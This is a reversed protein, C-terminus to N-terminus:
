TENMWEHNGGRLSVKKSWIKLGEFIGTERKVIKATKKMSDHHTGHKWDNRHPNMEVGREIEADKTVSQTTFTGLGLGWWPSNQLERRKRGKWRKKIGFGFRFGNFGFHGNEGEWKGFDFGIRKVRWFLFGWQRFLKM